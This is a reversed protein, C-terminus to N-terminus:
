STEFVEYTESKAKRKESKAKRKESKAKRKEIFKKKIPLSGLLSNVGLNIWRTCNYWGHGDM